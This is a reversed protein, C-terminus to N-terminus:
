PKPKQREKEQEQRERDAQEQAAKRVKTVNDVTDKITRKVDPM